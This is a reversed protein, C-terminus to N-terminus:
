MKEDFINELKLARYEKMTYVSNKPILYGGFEEIYITDENVVCVSFKNGVNKMIFNYEYEPLKGLGLRKREESFNDKLIVIDGYKM